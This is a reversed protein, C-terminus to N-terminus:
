RASYNFFFSFIGSVLRFSSSFCFPCHPPVKGECSQPKMFLLSGSLPITVRHQIELDLIWVLLLLVRAIGTPPLFAIWGRVQGEAVEPFTGTEPCLWAPPPPEPGYCMYLSQPSTSGVPFIGNGSVIAMERRWGWSRSSIPNKQQGQKCWTWNKWPERRWM